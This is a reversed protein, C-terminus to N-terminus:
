ITFNFYFSSYIIFTFFTTPTAKISSPFSNITLDFRSKKNDILMMPNKIVYSQMLRKFYNNKLIKDKKREFIIDTKLIIFLVIFVVVNKIKGKM